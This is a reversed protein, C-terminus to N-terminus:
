KIKNIYSVICVNELTTDKTVYNHLFSSLGQSELYNLRGWNIINKCKRGIEEREQRTLGYEFTNEKQVLEEKNQNFKAKYESSLGIGCTAWSSLGCMINFEEKTLGVNMFFSKGVYSTWSCRHHCCFTLLCGCLKGRNLNLNTMCRIAFDTAEGCLHKTVGVIGNTENIVSIHDLVLDKIDARIRHMKNTTKALKNDKKHKPSAREILLSKSNSFSKTVEAIWCSLQGRGAGFEIYCTNDNLLKYNELLGIIASAQKLHKKTKMGYESKKIESEVIENSLLKNSLKVHDQYILNVREIVSLIKEKNFSSLMQYSENSDNEQGKSKGSNIDTSIYQENNKKGANCIKLHKKLNCTYVTHKRDLPCVIRMKTDETKKESPDVPMQHEGCFDEGSKVLMKCYRKKRQVFYKCRNSIIVASM